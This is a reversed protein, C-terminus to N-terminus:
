RGRSIVMGVIVLALLLLLAGTVIMRRSRPNV